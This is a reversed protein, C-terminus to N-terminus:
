RVTVEVRRATPDEGAVNAQVAVPKELIVRSEAVGAGTLAQQVAMARRKALDHNAAPDGAASHYGSISARAKPNAQLRAVVNQLSGATADHLADSNVAFYVIVMEGQVLPPPTSPAVVAPAVHALAPYDKLMPVGNLPKFLGQHCTECNLKPADGLAGLRNPPYTGQLPTLYANNLDRVMNIGYYATVRQPPGDWSTFSRSNHCYTCNVGLATSFHTMLAYTWEAHMIGGVTKEPPLAANTVVRIPRSELLYPTFPDYPLSTLGVAAAPMNQGARGRSMGAAQAPGPNSFWIASPVPQGHHCTYCTVGTTGVHNQWDANVHRTMQLMRRAVVKTYVDDSEFNGEAHCYTCGQEPSVWATMAVMLRTFEGVDLDTLVQINKYVDRALPGGAPVPPTAEPVQNRAQVAAQLRPNFFEVMGTGRYGRQVTEIPPRECGSLTLAGLLLLTGLTAPRSGIM